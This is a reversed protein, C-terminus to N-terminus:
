KKQELRLEPWVLPNRYSVAPGGPECGPLWAQLDMQQYPPVPDVIKTGDAYYIVTMVARLHGTPNPPAAHLIWGHHFTADGAALAGHTHVELNRESLMESFAEESEDSIGFEGLFGLEHSGTAFLMSGVEEPVDVLPMWM